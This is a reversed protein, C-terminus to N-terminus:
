ACRETGGDGLQGRAQAHRRCADVLEEFYSAMERNATLVAAEYALLGFDAPLRERMAAAARASDSRGPSGPKMVELPLLDPDPFYRYDQADEKSRMSRTEDRDPDYLRTEQVIEGGDELIEIQRRAEFEIARELFRFSNLNKIECRTGLKDSGKRGCRYTPTAASRARKCTATASISGACWRMCPRPM